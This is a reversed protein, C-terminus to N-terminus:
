LLRVGGVFNSTNNVGAVYAIIGTIILILWLFVIAVIIGLAIQRWTGPQGLSM